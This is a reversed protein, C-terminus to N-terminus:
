KSSTLALVEEGLALLKPTADKISAYQKNKSAESVCEAWLLEFEYESIKIPNENPIVLIPEFDIIEAYPREKQFYTKLDSVPEPSLAGELTYRVQSISRDPYRAKVDEQLLSAQMNNRIQERRNVFIKGRTRALEENIIRMAIREKWTLMANIKNMEAYFGSIKERLSSDLRDYLYSNLHIAKDYEASSGQEYKALRACNEKVESYLPQIVYQSLERRDIWSTQFVRLVDQHSMPETRFNLRRYYSFNSMHPPNNSKPVELVFIGNQENEGDPIRYIRIREEWPQVRNLLLNEFREKNVDCFKMNAPYRHEKDKRESVGYIIIGGDTNLFGSITKALYGCDEQLDNTPQKYELNQSEDTKNKILLEIDGIRLQELEKGFRLQTFSVM